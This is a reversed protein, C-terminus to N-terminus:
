DEYEPFYIDEIDYDEIKINVGKSKWYDIVEQKNSTPSCNMVNFSFKASDNDFRYYDKCNDILEFVKDTNEEGIVDKVKPTKAYSKYGPKEKDGKIFIDKTGGDRLYSKLLEINSLWENDIRYAEMYMKVIYRYNQESLYFRRYLPFKVDEKTKAEKLLTDYDISPQARKYLEKYCKYIAEKLITERNLYKGDQENVHEM